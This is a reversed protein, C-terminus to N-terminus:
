CGGRQLVYAATAGFNDGENSEAVQNSSDLKLNVHHLEEYYQTQTIRGHATNSQGAPIPPFGIQTREMGQGTGKLSDEVDVLFGGADASGVNKVEVRITYTQGCTAPHPDMTIQGFVLNAGGSPAPQAPQAPVATALPLPVLTPPVPPPNILDLTGVVGEARVIGPHIFGNIGNALRIFFWRSGSSSVGLIEASEGELLFGVIQYATSDGARVNSNVTAVVRPGTEATPTAEPEPEAPPEETAEPEAPMEPPDPEDPMDAAVAEEMAALVFDPPNNEVRIPSVRVVAPGDETNITMRLEYLGDRATLTNWTGLIDDVVLSTQPVTAPFWPMPADEEMDGLALPRFEILFNSVKPLNVTGRIDVSDRVVYVPPPFSINADPNAMAADAPEIVSDGEQGAAMSTLLAFIVILFALHRARMM